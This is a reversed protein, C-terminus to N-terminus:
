QTVMFLDTSTNTTTTPTFHNIFVDYWFKQLLPSLQINLALAFIATGLGIAIGKGYFSLM